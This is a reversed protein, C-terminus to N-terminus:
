AAARPPFVSREDRQSYGDLCQHVLSEISQQWTLPRINTRKTPSTPTQYKEWEIIQSALSMPDALDFYYCESAGVERHIATNSAFVYRGHWLAEVIPLGFGEVVSPFVIARAREYCYNLEGDSADNLMFLQHGYREHKTIREIIDDCLWGVRGILCLKRTPDTEWIREFADLLYAHNKRPDFTAVMLYPCDVSDESFIEKVKPRVIAESQSFEAGLQFSRIDTCYMEGPLLDPLAEVIEDRVTNSIAVIMDSHRAVQKIYRRFSEPAKAAVFNPHTLPILDYVVSVVYAGNSRARVVPAWVQDHAWYADPLLLVDRSSIGEILPTPEGPLIAELCKIPLRFIGRHGPQPLLWSKLKVSQLQKCLLNATLVYLKPLHDVINNKFDQVKTQLSTKKLSSVPQFGKSNSVIVETDLESVVLPAYKCTNRVVRQVGSNLGSPLTHSADILFRRPKRKSGFSPQSNSKISTKLFRIGNSKM